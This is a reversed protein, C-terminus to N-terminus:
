ELNTWIQEKELNNQNNLPGQMETYIKPKAQWNSIKILIVNFRNMLKSLIVIEVSNILSRTQLMPHKM